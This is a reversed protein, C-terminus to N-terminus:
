DEPTLVSILCDYLQGFDDRVIFCLGKCHPKVIVGPYAPKNSTPTVLVRDGSKFERNQTANM